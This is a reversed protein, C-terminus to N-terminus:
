AGGRGATGGGAARSASGPGSGGSPRLRGGCIDCFVAEPISAVHGKPCTRGERRRTVTVSVVGLAHMEGPTVDRRLRLARGDTGDGAAQPGPDASEAVALLCDLRREDQNRRALGIARRLAGDARPWAAEQWADFCERMAVGLERNREVETIRPHPPSPRDAFADVEVMVAAPAAARVPSGGPGPVRIEVRCARVQEGPELWGPLAIRLYYDREEEGWDGLPIEVEEPGDGATRSWTRAEGGRLLDAELPFTQRAEVLEFGETLGLWLRADHHQLELGRRVSDVMGAALEAGNPIGAARGHLAEAIRLVDRFEWEDGLGIVDCVFSGACARLVSEVRASEESENKGDTCLLVHCPRDRLGAEAILTRAALLWESMRTGGASKQRSVAQRAAERTDESATAPGGHEPYVWTATHHGVMVAFLCGDPIEGIAAHLAEKALGFLGQYHMSRSRDLVLIEVPAVPPAEPVAPGAPGAEPPPGASVGVLVTLHDAQPPVVCDGAVELRFVRPGGLDDRGTM